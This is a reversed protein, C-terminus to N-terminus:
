PYAIQQPGEKAEGVLLNSERSIEENTELKPIPRATHITEEQSGLSEQGNFWSLWKRERSGM